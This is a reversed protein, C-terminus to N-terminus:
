HDRIAALLDDRYAYMPLSERQQKIALRERELPTLNKELEQIREDSMSSDDSVDSEESEAASAASDERKREKKRKKQKKRKEKKMKKEVLGTLLDSKVFDVQNDILLEYQKEEKRAKKNTGGVIQWAQKEKDMQFREEETLEPPGGRPRDDRYKQNLKKLM